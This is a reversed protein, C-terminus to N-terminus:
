ESIKSTVQNGNLKRRGKKEIYENMEGKKKRAACLIRALGREGEFDAL